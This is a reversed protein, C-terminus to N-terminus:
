RSCTATCSPRTRTTAREVVDKDFFALRRRNGLEQGTYVLPIGEGVVSLM